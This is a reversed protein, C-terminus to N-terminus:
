SSLLHQALLQEEAWKRETVDRANIVIAGVDIPGHSCDLTLTNGGAEGRVRIHQVGALPVPLPETVHDAVALVM